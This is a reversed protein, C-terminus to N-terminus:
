LNSVKMKSVIAFHNFASKTSFLKISLFLWIELFENSLKLFQFFFLGVLNFLKHLTSSFMYQKGLHLHQM